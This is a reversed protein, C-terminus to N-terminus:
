FRKCVWSLEGSCLGLRLFYSHPRERYGREDLVTVMGERSGALAYQCNLWLHLTARNTLQHVEGVCHRHSECWFPGGIAKFYTSWVSWAIRGTARKEDEILKRPAKVKQKIDSDSNNLTDEDEPAISSTESDLDPSAGSLSVVSQLRKPLTKEKLAEEVTKEAIPSTPDAKNEEELETM